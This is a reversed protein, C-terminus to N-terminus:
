LTMDGTRSPSCGLEPTEGYTKLTLSDMNQPYKPSDSFGIHSRWYSCANRTVNYDNMIATADTKLSSQVANFNLAAFM